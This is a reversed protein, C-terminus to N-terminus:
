KSGFYNCGYLCTNGRFHVITSTLKDSVDYARNAQMTIIEDKDARWKSLMV